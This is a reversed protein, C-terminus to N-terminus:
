GREAEVELFAAVFEAADQPVIANGAGRLAGARNVWRVEEEGQIATGAQGEPRVVAVRGSVGHALPFLGSEVGGQPIRRVKGDRCLILECADWFGGSTTPGVPRNTKEGIRGSQGFGDGNRVLGQSRADHSDGVVRSPIGSGDGSRGTNAGRSDRVASDQVQGGDREKREGLGRSNPNVVVVGVGGAVGPRRVARGTDAMGRSDGHGGTLFQGGEAQGSQDGGGVPVAVRGVRTGDAVWYLRQRKHDAGVSHAGLVVSGVAYGEGELDAQVGDLWGHGIAGEVQEGIVCEPRCERILRFFEPWLNRPDADGLGKGASSFPQCPCSGTWVPREDPWGALRLGECWGGIGAFFHCQTFGRLDDARVERIDREDVEGPPLQGERILERLWAAAHPDFESFYHL